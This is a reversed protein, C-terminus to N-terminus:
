NYFAKISECVFTVQTETMETHIPLSLVEKCLLETNELEFGMTVFHEFAKQRYLPIPYYIMTPIGMTELHQKLVNRKDEKVKITYQHFVCDSNLSRQPLVIGEIERLQEDYQNAVDQRAKIYQNLYRLKVSLIAAQLTDLRSNCGVVEHHYKKQQGHNAIMKIKEALIRDNTMLAGGDGYCALNKSPFFSTTGIHGITGTARPSDKSGTYKAGIAQANDEIVFLNYKSALRMIDDMDSCQGFLHVPIIAKTKSTILSELQDTKMNFTAYDVDILIPKFGLLAIVEATAAYTFAPVIIEDGYKLDLAMLAIQLADTGNACSVVHKIDLYEALETEFTKVQPGNIFLAQDLVEQVAGDIESKINLYQGKLDVM